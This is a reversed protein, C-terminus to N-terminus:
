ICQSSACRFGALIQRVNPHYWNRFSNRLAWPRTAWSGGKLVRHHGDFYAASYGPYPYSQFNPYPAFTTATWEWVNGLLDYCGYVSQGLPYANVPSPQGLGPYFNCTRDSPPQEGWPYPQPQTSDPGWAAAKEWEAETPLRKGVFRCYADAEYASVGCVPYNQYFAEDEGRGLWYLPQTIGQGEKWDWGDASWWRPEQYGNAQMFSSFEGQTVPYRDIWYTPVDVWHTSGENDLANLSDNGQRFPGAPIEVMASQRLMPPSKFTAVSAKTQQLYRLFRMTEGHQSEHQLLWRWLRLQAELPAVQLYSLVQKRVDQLYALLDNLPPLNEREAKPLGDAAFLIQYEAGPLSQQATHSLLWLAETYAIHGLHWGIPSFDPHVQSRVDSEDMGTLLALTGQRCQSMWDQLQERDHQISVLGMSDNSATSQHL